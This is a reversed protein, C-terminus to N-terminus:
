GLLRLAEVFSKIKDVATNIEDLTIAANDLYIM